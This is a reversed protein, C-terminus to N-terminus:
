QDYRQGYEVQKQSDILMDTKGEVTDLPHHAAVVEDYVPVMEDIEIQDLFQVADIATVTVAKEGISQFYGGPCLREPARDLVGSIRAVWM